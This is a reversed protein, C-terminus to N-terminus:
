KVVTVVSGRPIDAQAGDMSRANHKMIHCPMWGTSKGVTFRDIKGDPHTVQVRKGELGILERCLEADCRKGTQRSWDAGDKLAKAYAEWLEAPPDTALVGRGDGLWARIATTRRAVHERSATTCGGGAPIIFLGREGYGPIPQYNPDFVVGGACQIKELTDQM